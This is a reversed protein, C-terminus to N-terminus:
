EVIFTGKMTGFHGPFSCLFPYNGAEPATFEIQTTEGGGIMKTHVIINEMESAPIHDNDTAAVAAQGFENVDTGEKLLVFNHGMQEKSMEGTHKLILTVKQGPRAELIDKNYRMDDGAELEITIPEAAETVDEDIFETEQQTADQNNDGGCSAFAFLALGAFASLTIKKM